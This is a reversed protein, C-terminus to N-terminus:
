EIVIIIFFLPNILFILLIKWCERVKSIYDPHKHVNAVVDEAIDLDNHVHPIDEPVSAAEALAEDVSGVMM